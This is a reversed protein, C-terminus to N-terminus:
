VFQKLKTQKKEFKLRLKNKNKLSIQAEINKYLTNKYFFSHIDITKVIKFIVTVLFM